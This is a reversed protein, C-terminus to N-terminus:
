EDEMEAEDSAEPIVKSQRRRKTPTSKREVEMPESEPEEEEDEDASAIKYKKDNTSILSWNSISDLLWKETVFPAPTSSLGKKPRSAMPTTVCVNCEKYSNVVEGGADTVIAVLDKKPVVFTGIFFIKTGTLLNKKRNRSEACGSFWGPMEYEDEPVWAKVEMSRMVWDLSLVWIGRAIARCVKVTRKNDGVVLHTVEDNYEDTLEFEGLVEVVNELLHLDHAKTVNTYCIIGKNRPSEAPHQHASKKQVKKKPKKEEEEEEREEAEEEEEEEEPEEDAPKRKKGVLPQKATIKSTKSTKKKEEPKEEEDKKTKTKTKSSDKAAKTDKVSSASKQTKKKPKEEEEDVEEEEVKKSKKAPKAKEPTTEVKKKALVPKAKAPSTFPKKQKSKSPATKEAEEEKEEEEDEPVEVAKKSKKSKKQLAPQNSATKKTPPPEPKAVEKKGKQQSSPKKDQSKNVIAEVEERVDVAKEEEGDTAELDRNADEVSIEKDGELDFEFAGMDPSGPIEDDDEKYVFENPTPAPPPAKRSMGGSSSSSSPSSSIILDTLVAGTTNSIAAPTTPTAPHPSM